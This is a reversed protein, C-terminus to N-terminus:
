VYNCREDLSEEGGCDDLTAARAEYRDNCCSGGHHAHTNHYRNNCCRSASGGGSAGEAATLMLIAIGATAAGVSMVVGLTTYGGNCCGGSRNCCRGGGCAWASHTSEVTAAHAEVTCARIYCESTCCWPSRLYYQLVRQQLVHRRRLSWIDATAARAEVAALRLLTFSENTM